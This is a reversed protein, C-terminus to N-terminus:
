VYIITKFIIGAFTADNGFYPTINEHTLNFKFKQVFLFPLRTISDGGEVM